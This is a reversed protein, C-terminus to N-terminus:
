LTLTGARGAPVTTLAVTSVSVSIILTATCQVFFDHMLYQITARLVIVSVLMSSPSGRLIVLPPTFRFPVSIGAHMTQALPCNKIRIPM